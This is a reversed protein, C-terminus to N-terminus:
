WNSTVLMAASPSFCRNVVIVDFLCVYLKIVPSICCANVFILQVTSATSYKHLFFLFVALSSSIEYLSQHIHNQSDMNVKQWVTSPFQTLGYSIEPQVTCCLCTRVRVLCTPCEVDHSPFWDCSEPCVRDLWIKRCLLLVSGVACSQLWFSILCM